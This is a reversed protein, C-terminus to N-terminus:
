PSPDSVLSLTSETLTAHARPDLGLCTCLNLYLDLPMTGGAAVRALYQRTVGISNAVTSLPLGQVAASEDIVARLNPVTAVAGLLTTVPEARARDVVAGPFKGRDIRATWCCTV